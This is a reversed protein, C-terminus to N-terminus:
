EAIKAANFIDQAESPRYTKDISNVVSVAAGATGYHVRNPGLFLDNTKSQGFLTINKTTLDLAKQVIKKPFRLRGDDGYVAGFATMKKIGSEPAQSMGIEELLRFIAEEVLIVDKNSLPNYTGGIMGAKVPKIDDPLPSSREMRRASRGGSRKTKKEINELQM